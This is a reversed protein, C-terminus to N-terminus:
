KRYDEINARKRNNCEGCLPQINDRSNSGGRSLPIVHDLQIAELNGCRLCFEGYRDLVALWDDTTLQGDVGYARARSNAKAIKRAHPNNADHRKAAASLRDPNAKNWRRQSEKKCNSCQSFLGDKARRDRAFSTVPVLSKCTSCQKVKVEECFTGAQRGDHGPLGM